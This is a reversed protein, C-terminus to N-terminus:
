AALYHKVAGAPDVTVVVHGAHQDEADVVIQRGVADVDFQVATLLPARRNHRRRYINRNWRIWVVSFAGFVAGGAAVVEVAPRWAAPVHGARVQWVWLLALLL